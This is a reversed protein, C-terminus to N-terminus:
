VMGGGPPEAFCSATLLIGNATTGAIALWLKGYPSQLEAETLIEYPMAVAPWIEEGPTYWGVNYGFRVGRGEISCPDFRYDQATEAHTGDAFEDVLFGRVAAGWTEYGTAEQVTPPVTWGLAMQGLGYLQGYHLRGCVSVPAAMAVPTGFGPLLGVCGLFNETGIAGQAPQVRSTEDEVAPEEGESEWPLLACWFPSFPGGEKEMLERTAVGHMEYPVGWASWRMRAAFPATKQLDETFVSSRTTYFCLMNGCAVAWITVRFGNSWAVGISGAPASTFDGTGPHYSYNALVEWWVDGRWRGGTTKLFSERNDMPCIYVQPLVTRDPADQVLGGIGARGIYGAGCSEERSEESDSPTENETSLRLWIKGQWYAALLRGPIHEGKNGDLDTVVEWGRVNEYDTSDCNGWALPAYAPAGGVRATTWGCATATGLGFASGSGPDIYCSEGEYTETERFAEINM